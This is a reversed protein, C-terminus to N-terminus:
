FEIIILRLGLLLKLSWMMRSSVRLYNKTIVKNWKISM